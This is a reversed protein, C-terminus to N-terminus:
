INEGGGGGGGGGGVGGMNILKQCFEEGVCVCVGNGGGIIVGNIYSLNSDTFVSDCRNIERLVCYRM